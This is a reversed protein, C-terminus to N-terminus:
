KQYEKIESTIKKMEVYPENDYLLLLNKWHNFKSHFYNIFQPSYLRHSFKKFQKDLGIM